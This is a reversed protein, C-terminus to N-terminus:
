SSAMTRANVPTVTNHPTTANRTPTIMAAWSDNQCAFRPMSHSLKPRRRGSCVLAAMKAKTPLPMNAPM